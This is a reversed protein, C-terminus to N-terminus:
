GPSWREGRNLGKIKALRAIRGGPSVRYGRMLSAGVRGDERRWVSAWPAIPRGFRGEVAAIGGHPPVFDTCRLSTSRYTRCACPLRKSAASSHHSPRSVPSQLPSPAHPFVDNNFTNVLPYTSSVVIQHIAQQNNELYKGVTYHTFRWEPYTYAGPASRLRGYRASQRQYTNVIALQKESASISM